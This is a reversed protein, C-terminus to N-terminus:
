RKTNIKFDLQHARNKICQKADQISKAFSENDIEKVPNNANGDSWPSKYDEFFQLCYKDMNENIWKYIHPFDLESRKYYIDPMDNDRAYNGKGDQNISGNYGCPAPMFNALSHQLDAFEDFLNKLEEYGEFIEDLKELAESETVYYKNLRGKVFMSFYSWCNFITDSSKEVKEYIQQFLKATPSVGEYQKKQKNYRLYMSDPHRINTNKRYELLGKIGYGTVPNEPVLENRICKLFDAENTLTIMNEGRYIRVDYIVVQGDNSM